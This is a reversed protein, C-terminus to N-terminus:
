AARDQCFLTKFRSVMQEPQAPQLDPGFFLYEQIGDHFDKSSALGILHLGLGLDDQANSYLFDFYRLALLSDTVDSLIVALTKGTLAAKLSKMQGFAIKLATLNPRLVFVVADLKQVTEADLGSLPLLHLTLDQDCDHRETSVEVPLGGRLCLHQLTHIVHDQRMSQLVVGIEEVFANTEVEAQPFLHEMQILRAMHDRSSEGPDSRGPHDPKKM